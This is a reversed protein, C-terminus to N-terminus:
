VWEPVLSGNLELASGVSGSQSYPMRPRMYLDDMKGELQTVASEMVSLINLLEKNNDNGM